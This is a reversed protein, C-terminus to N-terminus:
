RPRVRSSSRGFRMSISPAMLRWSSSCRMPPRDMRSDMARTTIKARSRTRQALFETVEPDSMWYATMIGECQIGPAVYGMMQGPTSLAHQMGFEVIEAIDFLGQERGRDAVKVLDGTFELFENDLYSGGPIVDCGAWGASKFGCVGLLSRNPFPVNWLYVWSALVKAAKVAAELYVPNDTADHMKILSRMVFM